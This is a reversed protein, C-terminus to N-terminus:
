ANDLAEEVEGLMADLAELVERAKLERFGQEFVAAMDRM